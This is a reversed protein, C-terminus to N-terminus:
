KVKILPLISVGVLSAVSMVALTWNWIDSPDFSIGLFYSVESTEASNLESIGDSHSQIMACSESITVAGNLLDLCNPNGNADPNSSVNLLIGTSPDLFASCFQNPRWQKQRPNTEIASKCSSHFADCSSPCLYLMYDHFPDTQNEQIFVSQMPSCYTECYLLKFSQACAPCDKFMPEYIREHREKLWQDTQESCCTNDHHVCFSLAKSPQRPKKGTLTCKGPSLPFSKTQLLSHQRPLTDLALGTVCIVLILLIRM